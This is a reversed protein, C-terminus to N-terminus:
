LGQEMCPASSCKLLRYRMKHQTGPCLACVMGNSHTIDQTGRAGQRCGATDLNVAKERWDIRRPM